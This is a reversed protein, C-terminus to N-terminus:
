QLPGLAGASSLMMYVILGVVVPPLGMLASITVVVLGRGPFRAVALFAGVPFGILAAVAVAMLSVRMSLGVVEILNPDLSFVLRFAEFFSAAFDQM